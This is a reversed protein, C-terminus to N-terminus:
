FTTVLGRTLGSGVLELTVGGNAISAPPSAGGAPVEHRVAWAVDGAVLSQGARCAIAHEVIQRQTLGSAVYAFGAWRFGSAPNGWSQHNGVRLRRDANAAPPTGAFDLRSSARNGNVFADSRWTGGDDYTRWAIHLLSGITPYDRIPSVITGGSIEVVLDLAGSSPQIIVAWGAGGASGQSNALAMNDTAAIAEVIQGLLVGTFAGGGGCAGDVTSRYYNSADFGEITTVEPLAFGGSSPAVWAPGGGSYTVVDGEDPTGSPNALAGVQAATVVHPNSTNAVHAATATFLTSALSGIEELAGQADEATFGDSPVVSIATAAHAATADDVHATLAAADAKAAIAGPLTSVDVGDITIGDAVALNGVLTRAGNARLYQTHDDDGLGTLDGHDTVGAGAAPVVAPSVVVRVPRKGAQTVTVQVAAPPYVKVTV